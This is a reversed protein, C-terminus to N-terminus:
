AEIIRNVTMAYCYPFFLLRPRDSTMEEEEGSKGEVKKGWYPRTKVQRDISCARRDNLARIRLVCFYFMRLTM